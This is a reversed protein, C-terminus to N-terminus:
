RRGLAQKMMAIRRKQILMQKEKKQEASLTRSDIVAREKQALESLPKKLKKMREYRAPNFDKPKKNTAKFENAAKEQKDWEAYYDEVTQSSRYPVALLGSVIPAQEATFNFLKAKGAASNYMLEPGKIFGQGINGTYGYLVHDIKRPSVDLKEGLYKALASTTSTYQMKAPLKEERRPVIPRETFFSYNAMAEMIPSLATLQWDPMNDLLPKVINKAKIDKRYMQKAMMNEVLNSAFRVGIDAGKPVRVITNGVKFVWHNQKQWEPLEKYWDESGHWLSLLMAPLVATFFLKAVSKAFHKPDKPNFERFFKDWGQISANTFIILQNASRSAKGGRAFDMLDRSQLAAEAIAQAQSAGQEMVARKAGTYVAIRTGAESIESAYQILDLVGQLGARQKWTKTMDDLTTQTYNRDLTLRGSQAAGSSLWEYFIEDKNWAHMFGAALDKVPNFGYKAYLVADAVDRFVNRVAFALNNVTFASRAIAAPMRLFQIFQNTSDKGMNNIANVIAKDTQLYKTKGGEKFTITEGVKGPSDVEEIIDGVGGCRAINVLKLKAANKEAKAVMDFTNRIISELPNIVDRRSGTLHELSNGFSINEDEDFVRFMPVYNKWQKKMEFYRQTSILGAQHVMQLMVNSFRVLDKQSKGFRDINDQDNIIEDCEAETLPTEYQEEPSLNKNGEHMDKVHCAMCYTIFDNRTTENGIAGVDALIQHLTKFDTFDVNPFTNKLAEVIKDGRGEILAMARGANGRYLRFATYPNTLASFKKGMRKELAETMRKVPGLEEVWQDYMKNVIDSLKTEKVNQFSIINRAKEMASMNNYRDFNQQLDLLKEAFEPHAKMAKAFKAAEASTNNVAGTLIWDAIYNNMAETSQIGLASCIAKGAKPIVAKFDYATKARIIGEAEKLVAAEKGDLKGWRIKLGILDELQERLVKRNLATDKGKGTFFNKITETISFGGQYNSGSHNQNSGSISAHFDGNVQQREPLGEERRLENRVGLGLAVSGTRRAIASLETTIHRAYDIVERMTAILDQRVARAREPAYDRGTVERVIERANANAELNALRRNLPALMKQQFESHVDNMEAILEGETKDTLMEEALDHFGNEVFGFLDAKQNVTLDFKAIENNGNEGRIDVSNEQQSFIKGSEIEGFVKEAKARENGFLAAVSTYTDDIVQMAKGIIGQYRARGEKFKLYADARAEADGFHKILANLQEKTMFKEAFHELEHNITGKEAYNSLDITNGQQKGNVFIPVGDPIKHDRRAQMEEAETLVVNDQAHIYLKAGSKFTARFVGPKVEKVEASKCAEKVTELTIPRHEREVTDESVSYRIDDNDTSFQGNNDTASKIQNANFVVYDDTIYEDDVNRIIVGDYGNEKASVSLEDSTTIDFPARNKIEFDEESLGEDDMAELLYGETEFGIGDDDFIDGTEKDVAVYDGMESFTRGHADYDVANRINLFVPIEREGYQEAADKHRAFWFGPSQQANKDFAYFDETNTGHYVVLPEGNEDVGKSAGKSKDIYQAIISKSRSLISGETATKFMSDLDKKITVEHLYFGQRNARQTIVVECAYEDAGIMVPAIIVATDYGRGKWNNERAYVKGKSVVDPVVAYAAAKVRGIGHGLSAKVGEKDLKIEGLEPNVVTEKGIEKYYDVVRDVLSRESKAFENGTISTVPKAKEMYAKATAVFAAAEWDGFWKKFEPTRVQRYQEPTLNSPKGNPALLTKGDASFKVKNDTKGSRGFIEGGRVKGFVQRQAAARNGFFSLTGDIIRRMTPFINNLKGMFTKGNAFDRYADAQREENKNIADLVAREAKTMFQKAFHFLEHHITGKQGKRALAILNGFQFGDATVGGRGEIGHEQRAQKEQEATMVIEDVVNIYMKQGNPLSVEFVGDRIEDVPMGQFADKVTEKTIEGAQEVRDAAARISFKIEGTEDKVKAIENRIAEFFKDYAENIAQREAGEPYPKRKFLGALPQEEWVAENNAAHNLFGSEFGMESMKDELYSSFARALMEWNSTWYPKGRTGELKRAELFYDTNGEYEAQGGKAELEQVEKRAREVGRLAYAIEEVRDKHASGTVEKCLAAIKDLADNTYHFPYSTKTAATEDVRYEVTQNFALKALNDFKLLQKDTAAAKKRSYERPNALYKRLENLKGDVHKERKALANRKDEMDVSKVRHKLTATKILDSFAQAIEQPIALNKLGAESYASAMFHGLNSLAKKLSGDSTRDAKIAGGKILLYNDLAHLWEHALSGAGTRKTLNIVTYNAEFHARAGATGRAGFAMGLEGNLSLIHPDVGLLHALDMLADYSANLLAQREKQSNWEGFQVGRFGFTKAYDDTTVDKGKRYDQATDSRMEEWQKGKVELMGENFTLNAEMIADFNNVVFKAAEAETAFDRLQVATVDNKTRHLIYLRYYEKGNDDKEKRLSFGADFIAAKINNMAETETSFSKGDLDRIRYGYKSIAKRDIQVVTQGDAEKLSIGDMWASKDGKEKQVKETQQKGNFAEVYKDVFKKLDADAIQKGDIEAVFMPRPEWQYSSRMRYIGYKVAEKAGITVDHGLKEYIYYNAMADMKRGAAFVESPTANESIGSSFLDRAANEVAETVKAKDQSEEWLQLIKRATEKAEIAQKAWAKNVSSKPVKYGERLGRLFSVATSPMGSELMAKYKPEPWIRNFSLKLMSDMDNNAELQAIHARVIDKRAGGIKQGFDEIKDQKAKEPKAKEAKKTEAVTQTVEKGVVEGQPEAEAQEAEQENQVDEQVNEQAQQETTGDLKRGTQMEYLEAFVQYLPNNEDARSVEGDTLPYGAKKLASLVRSPLHKLGEMRKVESPYIKAKGIVIQGNDNIKGTIKGRKVVREKNVLKAGLYMAYDFETKNLPMVTEGNVFQYITKDKYTDQELQLGDKVAKEIAEAMTMAKGDFSKTKRLAKQVRGKQMASMSATYEDLKSGQSEPKSEQESQPVTNNSLATTPGDQANHKPSKGDLVSQPKEAKKYSTKLSLKIEGNKVMVVYHIGGLDKSLLMGENGNADKDLVANDFNQVVDYIDSILDPTMNVQGRKEEDKGHQKKVHSIESKTIFVKALDIDFIKKAAQKLKESPYFEVKSKNSATGNWVDNALDLIAQKIKEAPINEFAKQSNTNEKAFITKKVGKAYERAKAMIPAAAQNRSLENLLANIRDRGIQNNLNKEKIEKVVSDVKKKFESLIEVEGEGTPNEKEASVKEKDEGNLEDLKAQWKAKIDEIANRESESYEGKLNDLRGLMTEYWKIKTAKWQNKIEGDAEALHKVDQKYENLNRKAWIDDMKAKIESFLESEDEPLKEGIESTTLEDLMEGLRNYVDVWSSKLSELDDLAKDYEQALREFRNVEAAQNEAAEGQEADAKRSEPAAVPGNDAETSIGEATKTEINEDAKVEKGIEESQSEQEGRVPKQEASREDAAANGNENGRRNDATPKEQGQAFREAYDAWRELNLMSTELKLFDRQQEERVDLVSPFRADIYGNTLMDEAILPLVENLDKKNIKGKKGYTNLADIWWQYNRSEPYVYIEEGNVDRYLGGKDVGQAMTSRLAAIQDAIMKDRKFSFSEYMAAAGSGLSSFWAKMYNFFPKIQPPIVKGFKAWVEPADVLDFKRKIEASVEKTEKEDLAQADAASQSETENNQPLNFDAQRGKGEPLQRPLEPTIPNNVNNTQQAPKKITKPAIPQPLLANVRATDGARIADIVAMAGEVNGQQILQSAYNMGASRVEGADLRSEAPQPQIAQQNGGQYQGNNFVANDQGSWGDYSNLYGLGGFQGNNERQQGFSYDRNGMGIEGPKQIPTSKGVLAQRMNLGAFQHNPMPTQRGIKAQVGGQQKRAQEVHQTNVVVGAQQAAASKAKRQARLAERALERIGAKDGSNITEMASTVEDMDQANRRNTLAENALQLAQENDSFIAEEEQKAIADLKARNEESDIFTIEGNADQTVIDGLADLNDMGAIYDAYDAAESGVYGTNDDSMGESGHDSFHLHGGTANASPNEYEDLGALGLEQAKALVAQRVAADSEMLDDVIDFANGSDHWSSGDGERKGSTMTFERGYTAKYWDALQNLKSQTGAAVDPNSTEDSINYNRPPEAEGSQQDAPNNNDVNPLDTNESGKNRGIRSGAYRAAGGATGLIGMGVLASEGEEYQDPTMDYGPIYGYPKGEARNSFAKQEMEELVQSGLETSQLAAFEAANLGLNAARQAITQPNAVKPLKKGAKGMAGFLTGQLFNSGTLFGTNQWFQTNYKDKWDKQLAEYAEQTIDDDISKENEAMSGGVETAAEVPTSAANLLGWYGAQMAKQAAAQGIVDAVAARSAQNAVANRAIQAAAENGYVSQAARGALYKSAAGDGLLGKALPTVAKNTAKGLFGLAALVPATEAAAAMAMSVPAFVYQSAAFDAVPAIAGDESLAYETLTGNKLRNILDPQMTNPHYSARIDAAKRYARSFDNDPDSEFTSVLDAMMRDTAAGSRDIFSNLMKSGTDAPAISALDSSKVGGMGNAALAAQIWDTDDGLDNLADSAASAAEKAQKQAAAQEAEAINMKNEWERFAENQAKWTEGFRSLAMRKM